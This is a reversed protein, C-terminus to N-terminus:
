SMLGYQSIGHLLTKRGLGRCGVYQFIINNRHKILEASHWLFMHPFPPIAGGNKVETSSPEWM